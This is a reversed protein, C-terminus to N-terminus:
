RMLLIMHVERKMMIETPTNQLSERNLKTMGILFLECILDRKIDYNRVLSIFIM